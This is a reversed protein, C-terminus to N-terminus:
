MNGIAITYLSLGADGGYNSLQLVMRHGGHDESDGLEEDLGEDALTM